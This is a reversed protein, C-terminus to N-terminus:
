KEEIRKVIGQARLKSELMGVNAAVRLQPLAVVGITELEQTARQRESYKDSGLLTILQAIRDNTPQDVVTKECLGTTVLLLVLPLSLCRKYMVPSWIDKLSDTHSVCIIDIVALIASCAWRLCVLHAPSPSAFDSLRRANLEM